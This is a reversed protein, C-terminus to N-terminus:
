RPQLTLERELVCFTTPFDNRSDAPFKEESVQVWGTGLDPLSVDGEVEAEVWTVYLRSCLPLAQRYLEAGGIIFCESEGFDKAVKLASELTKFVECGPATFGERRSLVLNKRNPLPKGISEYCKRGLIVCHGSTLQRFRKLDLSLHWPLSGARGIVSNRSAAVICSIRM